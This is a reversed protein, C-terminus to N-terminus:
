IIGSNKKKKIKQLLNIIQYKMIPQGFKNTKHLNKYIKKRKINKENIQKEINEKNYRKKNLFSFKNKINSEYNDKKDKKNIDIEKDVYINKNKELM